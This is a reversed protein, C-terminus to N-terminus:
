GLHFISLIFRLGLNFFTSISSFIMTLFEKLPLLGIGFIDKLIDGLAVFSDSGGYVLAFNSDGKTFSWQAGVSLGAVFLAAVVSAPVLIAIAPRLRATGGSQREPTLIAEKDQRRLKTEIQITQKSEVKKAPEHKQLLVGDVSSPGTFRREVIGTSEIKRPFVIIKSTM